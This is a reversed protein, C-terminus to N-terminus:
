FHDPPFQDVGSVRKLFYLRERLPWRLKGLSGEPFLVTKRKAAMKVEGFSCFSM